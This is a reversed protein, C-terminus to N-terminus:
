YQGLHSYEDNLRAFIILRCILNSRSHNDYNIIHHTVVHIAKLNVNGVVDLRLM